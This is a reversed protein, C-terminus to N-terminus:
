APPAPADQAGRPGRVPPKAKNTRMLARKTTSRVEVPSRAEDLADLLVELGLTALRRMVVEVWSELRRVRSELAITYTELEEVYAYTTKTASV